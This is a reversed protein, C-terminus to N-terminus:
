GSICEIMCTKELQLIFDILDEEAQQSDAEFADTIRRKIKALSTKSDIQVWIGAAVDNLSFITERDNTDQQTPVLVIEEGIKRTVVSSNKRYCRKLFEKNLNEM